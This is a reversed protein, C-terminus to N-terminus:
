PTSHLEFHRKQYNNPHDYWLPTPTLHPIHCMYLLLSSNQPFGSPFPSYQPRRKRGLQTGLFTRMFWFDSIFFSKGMLFLPNTYCFATLWIANFQFHSLLRLNLLPTFYTRQKDKRRLFYCCPYFQKNPFKMIQGGWWNNPHSAPCIARTLSLIRKSLKLGFGRLTSIV